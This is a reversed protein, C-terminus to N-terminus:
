KMLQTSPQLWSVIFDTISPFLTTMLGLLPGAGYTLLQRWFEFGLEGARTRTIYSLTADRHMGAYIIVLATGCLIFVALFIAGLLPLPDFPYSSVALTSAVFLCLIGFVMSRIRGLINQIFGVYPLVVFEEASIVYAPVNASVVPGGNGERDESRAHDFILSDSERQWAPILISSLICASISAFEAQLKRLPEVCQVPKNNLAEFWAVLEPITKRQCSRIRDVVWVQHEAISTSAPIGQDIQNGLHRLAETQRSILCYREALVNGSMAWVSRWSLGQLSNLTRRLPLRDLYTLLMSLQRWALWCQITDTFIVAILLSIWFFVYVGFSREGLTRLWFGGLAVRCVVLVLPFIMALRKFYSAGLPHALSEVPRAAQEESFMPMVSLETENPLLPRDNGFLALGRLCFWFWLYMGVLLFMQPLLPSVGNVLHMSRWFVSIQNARTLLFLLKLHLVFFALVMLASLILAFKWSSRVNSNSFVVNAMPPLNRNALCGSCALGAITLVYGTIFLGIRGDLKGYLLGSSAALVIAVAVIISSGFGILAAHQWRPIAAFHAERFSAPLPSISACACWLFHLLAWALCLMLLIWFELPVRDMPHPDGGIAMVSSKLESAEKLVSKASSQPLTHSNLVALPWLQRHGVVTL